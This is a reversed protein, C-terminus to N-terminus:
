YYGLKFTILAHNSIIFM